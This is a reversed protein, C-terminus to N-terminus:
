VPPQIGQSRLHERLRELAQTAQDARQKEQEARQAAEEARRKERKLQRNNRRAEKAAEEPEAEIEAYSAFPRGKPDFLKLEGDALDFRMALATRVKGSCPDAHRRWWASYGPHVEQWRGFPSDRGRVGGQERGSAPEQSLRVVWPDVSRRKPSSSCASAMRTM